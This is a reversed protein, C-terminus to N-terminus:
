VPTDTKAPHGEAEDENDNLPPDLDIEFIINASDEQGVDHYEARRLPTLVTEGDSLFIDSRENYGASTAEPDTRAPDAGLAPNKTVQHFTFVIFNAIRQKAAETLYPESVTYAVLVPDKSSSPPLRITTAADFIQQEEDTFHGKPTFWGAPRDYLSALVQLTSVHPNSIGREYRGIARPHLGTRYAVEVQTLNAQTRADSLKSGDVAVRDYRFRRAPRPPVPTGALDQMLAEESVNYRDALKRIAATPPETKATEWNRVTQGTTGVVEAAQAQTLGAEVRATRLRSGLQVLATRGATARLSRQRQTQDTTDTPM